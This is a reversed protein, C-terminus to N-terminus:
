DAQRPSGNALDETRRYAKNGGTVLKHLTLYGSSHLEEVAAILRVDGIPFGDAKLQDHIRTRTFGDPQNPAVKDIAKKAAVVAERHRDAKGNSHSKKPGPKKGLDHANPDLKRLTSILRQKVARTADLDALIIRERAEVVRLQERWPRISEQLKAEIEDL